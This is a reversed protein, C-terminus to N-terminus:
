KFTVKDKALDEIVFKGVSEANERTIRTGNVRMNEFVFGDFGWRENLPTLFNREKPHDEENM